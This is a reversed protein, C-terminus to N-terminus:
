DNSRDGYTNRLKTSSVGQTYSLFVVRVNRAAMDKELAVWDPHGKWDDGKFLIDFGIKEHDSLNDFKPQLIVQDVYRIARVVEMRNRECQVPLKGKRHECLSDSAVGVILKDCMSKARGLLRTHGVHLMDFVGTTYGVILKDRWKM